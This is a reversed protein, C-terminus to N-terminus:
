AANLNDEEARFQRGLIPQVGLFSFTEASIHAGLFRDPKEGNTIIFTAEEWGGLGELTTAQKKIELFDPLTLGSDQDATKTFFQSLYVLRDQNQMLPFPRLLVANVISFSTTSAGIGLAIALVAIITFGPTKILGRLALRLQNIM